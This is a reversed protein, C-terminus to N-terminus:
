NIDVDTKFIITSEPKSYLRSKKIVDINIGKAAISEKVMIAMYNGMRPDILIKEILKITNRIHVKAVGKSMPKKRLLM